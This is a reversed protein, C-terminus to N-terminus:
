VLTKIEYNKIIDQLSVHYTEELDKMSMSYIPHMIGNITINENISLLYNTLSILKSYAIHSLVKKNKNYNINYLNCFELIDNRNKITNWIMGINNLLERRELSLGDQRYRQTNIWVGLNVGDICSNIGDNTKFDKPIKLNGYYEYYNSALNYYDYWSEYTRFVGLEQLLALREESLEGKRRYSKQNLIFRYLNLGRSDYTIGNKTCFDEPVKINHYCEYYNKLLNYLEDWNDKLVWNIGLLELKAIRESKLKGQQYRQRQTSIWKGLALGDEQYSSGDITKFLQPINLNGHKSFYVQALDYMKDWEYDHKNVTVNLSDLCKKKDM